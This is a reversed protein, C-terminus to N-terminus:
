FADGIEQLACLGWPGTSLAPGRSDVGSGPSPPLVGSDARLLFGRLALAEQEVQCLGWFSGPSLMLAQPEPLPRWPCLLQLGDPLGFSPSHFAQARPSVGLLTQQAPLGADATQTEDPLKSVLNKDPGRLAADTEGALRKQELPGLYHHHRHRHRFVAGPELTHVHEKTFTLGAVTREPAPPNSSRAEKLSAAQPADQTGSAQSPGPLSGSSADVSRPTHTPGPCSSKSLWDVSGFSSPQQRGRPPSSSLRM